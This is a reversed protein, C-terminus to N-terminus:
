RGARGKGSQRNHKKKHKKKKKVCKGRKLAKGKKCTKPPPVNGAGNFGESAPTPDNPPNPLPQCADGECPLAKLPPEPLGGGVRADYIDFSRDTDWGVLRDDTVFFVDDGSAGADFLRSQHAGTGKSILAPVGDIYEYVDSVGNSDHKALGELSEFFVRGDDTVNRFQHDPGFASEAPSIYFLRGEASADKGEPECSVCTLRDAAQDYLYVEQIGKNDYVTLRDASTFVLFRNNESSRSDSLGGGFNLSTSTAVYSVKVSGGDVEWAYIKLGPDSPKGAIIQNNATFYGSDLDHVWRRDSDFGVLTGLEAEVGPIDGKTLLTLREGTPADGDWLYFDDNTDEDAAVLAESSRLIARSGDGVKGEVAAVTTGPGGDVQVTEEGDVRVYNNGGSQFYIHSGDRSIGILQGEAAGGVTLVSAVRWTEGKDVTEYVCTVPGECAADDTMDEATDLAYHSGDEDFRYNTADPLREFKRTGANDRLYQRVTTALSSEDVPFDEDLTEKTRERWNFRSFSLDESLEFLGSTFSFLGEGPTTGETQWGTTGPGRRAIYDSLNAGKATELGAFSGQSKYAVKQGDPSAVGYVRWIDARNKDPPSVMEWRRDEPLQVEGLGSGLDGTPTVFTMDEGAETDAQNEAVLRFHYEAGPELGALRQRVIVPDNGAGADADETLPFSNGYSDDEGWEIWYDTPSNEADVKGGVFAETGGVLAFAPMTTASPGAALTTFVVPGATASTVANTAVLTVQYETNAMLGEATVSIPQDGTGPPFSGELGPCEPTCEFRWTGGAAPDDDGPNVKGSFHATHTGITDVANIQVGPADPSGTTFPNPARLVDKGGANEAVLRFYYTTGTSLGEVHASVASLGVTSVPNQACPTQGPSQFGGSIFQEATVYEFRCNVDFAPDAGAPRGVQGSLDAQTFKVNAADEVSVASPPTVALTTFDSATESDGGGLNSISLRLHYTTSSELGTLDAEVATAGTTTIPNQDCPVASARNFEEVGHGEVPTQVDAGSTGSPALGSGNVSVAEVDTGALAGQFDITYPADGFEDGPGGSVAVNGAGIPPLAELAAQVAAASANYALPGTSSGGFSLVFTGGTARVTLQQSESRAGYDADSVYEFRCNSEFAPDPGEVGEVEGSVHASTFSVSSADDVDLVSPTAVPLTTASVVNSEALPEGFRSVKIRVYYTTGPKLETFETEVTHVEDGPFFVQGSAGNPDFESPDEKIEWNWFTFETLDEKIHGVAKVTTYGVTLPSDVSQEGGIALAASPNLAPALLVLALTAISLALAKRRTTSATQPRSAAFM